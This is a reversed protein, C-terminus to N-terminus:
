LCISNLMNTRIVIERTLIWDAVRAMSCFSSMMCFVFDNNFTVTEFRIFVQVLVAKKSNPRAFDSILCSGQGFTLNLSSKRVTKLKVRWYKLARECSPDIIFKFLIRAMNVDYKRYYESTCKCWFAKIYHHCCGKPFVQTRWHWFPAIVWIELFVLLQLCCASKRHGTLNINHILLKNRWKISIVRKWFCISPKSVSMYVGLCFVGM